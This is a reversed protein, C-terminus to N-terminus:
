FLLVFGLSKSKVRNQFFVPLKRKREWLYSSVGVHEDMPSATRLTHGDLGYRGGGVCRVSQRSAQWRIILIKEACLRSLFQSEADTGTGRSVSIPALSSNALMHVEAGQDNRTRFWSVRGEATAASIARSPGHVLVNNGPKSDPYPFRGTSFHEILGPWLLLIEILRFVSILLFTVENNHNQDDKNWTNKTKICKSKIKRKRRM